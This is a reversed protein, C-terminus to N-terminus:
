STAAAKATGKLRDAFEKALKRVDAKLLAPAVVEFLEGPLKELPELTDGDIRWRTKVIFHDGKPKKPDVPIQSRELRGVGEESFEAKTAELFVDAVVAEVTGKITLGLQARVKGTLKAETILKRLYELTAEYHGLIGEKPLLANNDVVRVVVESAVKQAAKLERFFSRHGLAKLRDLEALEAPSVEYSLQGVDIRSKDRFGSEDWRFHRTVKDEITRDVWTVAKPPRLQTGTGGASLDEPRPLPRGADLSEVFAINSNGQLARLLGGIDQVRRETEPSIGLQNLIRTLRKVAAEIEAKSPKDPLEALRERLVAELAPLITKRVSTLQDSDIRVSEGAENIAQLYACRWGAAVVLGAQGLRGTARDPRVGRLNAPVAADVDAVTLLPPPAATM